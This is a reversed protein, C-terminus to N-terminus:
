PLDEACLNIVRRKTSRLIRNLYTFGAVWEGGPCPLNTRPSCGGFGKAEVNLKQYCASPANSAETFYM